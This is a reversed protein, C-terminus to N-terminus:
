CITNCFAGLHKHFKKCCGIYTVTVKPNKTPKIKPTKKTRTITFQHRGSALEVSASHAAVQLHASHFCIGLCLKLKFTLFHQRTHLHNCVLLLLDRSNIRYNLLRDGM